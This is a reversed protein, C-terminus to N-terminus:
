LRMRAEEGNKGGNNEADYFILNEKRKWKKDKRREFCMKMSLERLIEEMNRVFTQGDRRSHKLKYITYQRNPNYAKDYPIKGLAREIYRKNFPDSIVVILRGNYKVEM